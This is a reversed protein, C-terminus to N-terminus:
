VAGVSLKKSVDIKEYFRNKFDIVLKNNAIKMIIGNGSNLQVQITQSKAPPGKNFLNM